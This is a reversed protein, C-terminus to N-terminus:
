DFWIAMKKNQRSWGRQFAPGRIKAGTPFAALGRKNAALFDSVFEAM